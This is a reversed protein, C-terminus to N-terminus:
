NSELEKDHKQKGECNMSLYEQELQSLKKEDMNIEQLESKSCTVLSLYVCRM